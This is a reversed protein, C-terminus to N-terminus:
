ASSAMSAMSPAGTSGCCSTSITSSAWSSTERTVPTAVPSSVGPCTFRATFRAAFSTSSFVASERWVAESVKSRTM